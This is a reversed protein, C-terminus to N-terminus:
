FFPLLPPGAGLELGGTSLRMHISAPMYVLYARTLRETNSRLRRTARQCLAVKNPGRHRVRVPVERLLYATSRGRSLGSVRPPRQRTDLRSRRTDLIEGVGLETGCTVELRPLLRERFLRRVGGRIMGMGQKNTARPEDHRHIHSHSTPDL